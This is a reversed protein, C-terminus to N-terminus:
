SEDARATVRAGDRVQDSPYVVVRDGIALGGAVEADTGAMHGIRVPQRAVVGSRVLYVQWTGAAGGPVLASRPVAIASPTSWVVIAVNVRHGDSLGMPLGAIDVVVNVRQEEVGLASVKTFGSPEIARVRGSITAAGESDSGQTLDPFRVPDGVGVLVVDTSLLDVVVELAGPEGIELLPAGAPVIRESREVVRLVRGSAPARVIVGASDGDRAELVARAQRVEADAAASRETAGRAAEEADILALQAEEASRPALAGAGVLRVARSLERRRQELAATAVRSQGAAAIAIAVTADIRAQAQLRAEPDLPLPLIHAVVDGARVVAGELTALRQVRGGVPAVVVYRDRVRTRGSAEVVSELRRSEVRATEVALVDPRSTYWAALAIAATIATGIILTRRTIHM